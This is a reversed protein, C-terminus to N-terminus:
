NLAPQIRLLKGSREDTLVYVYGDPGVRVDRIRSKLDTLLWEEHIVAQDKLTLRILAEEALAGIFLSHQWQSFRTHQYFAMGSIGPSKEWYYVPQETGAVHTGQAEAIPLGSYDIGYTAAPWGYNKGAQIINIEDGGRPGHETEWLANTWPNIAMGQPNRVGYAWIPSTKGDVMIPNDAPVSGDLNIRVIKGQLFDIYQATQRQNNEGLSIFLHGKHDFVLRGGFHNGVSLKPLQRFVVKFDQLYNQNLVGVGVATGAKGNQGAEAYAIYIRHNRMYDPDIAVDFLGGQGSTYMPPLGHIPHSLGSRPSWMRLQGIKETILIGDQEPLFALSWPRNLNDVLTDVKVHSNIAPTLSSQAENAHVKGNLIFSFIISFLLFIASYKLFYSRNHKNTKIMM